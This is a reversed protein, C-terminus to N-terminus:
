RRDPVGGSRGNRAAALGRSTPEGRLRLGPVSPCSRAPERAASRRHHRGSSIGRANISFFGLNAIVMAYSYAWIRIASWCLNGVMMVIFGYRNKTGLLYIAWFTLCMALWDIGLYQTM